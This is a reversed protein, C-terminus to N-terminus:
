WARLTAAALTMRVMPEVPFAMHLCADDFNVVHEGHQAHSSHFLANAFHGADLAHGDVMGRLARGNTVVLSSEVDCVDLRGHALM